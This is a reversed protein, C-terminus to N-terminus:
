GFCIENEQRYEGKVGGKGDPRSTEDFPGLIIGNGKMWNQRRFLTDPAMVDGPRWKAGHCIQLGGVCFTPLSPDGRRDAPPSVIRHEGRAKRRAKMAHRTDDDEQGIMGGKRSEGRMRRPTSHKRSFFHDRKRHGAAFRRM